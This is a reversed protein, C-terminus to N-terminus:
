AIHKGVDMPSRLSTTPCMSSLTDINCHSIDFQFITSCNIAVPSSLNSFECARDPNGKRLFPRWRGLPPLSIDLHLLCVTMLYGMSKWFELKTFQVPFGVLNCSVAIWQPIYVPKGFTFYSLHFLLISLHSGQITAHM